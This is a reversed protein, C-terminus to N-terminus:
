HNKKGFLKRLFRGAKTTEKDNDAQQNEQESSIDDNESLKEKDGKVVDIMKQLADRVVSKKRLPKCDFLGITNDPLPPPEFLQMKQLSSYNQAQQLVRGAIPLALKSGSGYNGHQFHIDDDRAGVWVAIVMKKNYCIYRADKYNQSTGTKGAFKNQVGYQNYLSQGTGRSTAELLMANMKLATQESVPTQFTPQLKQYIVEDKSNRIEKIAYQKTMKGKNAFASYAAALELLSVDMTGLAASPGKPLTNSFGMKRCMYDFDDYGVRRYLDVAPLNMSHALAYWLAAEGGSSGDYNRPEWDPYDEFHHPENVLYDCPEFGKELATAYLIPKFASAAQRQAKVLDYPLYRFNNGGVWALINGREPGQIVVGAHLMKKYHWLSDSFSMKRVGSGEWTFIERKKITSNEEVSIYQKKKGNFEGDLRKQMLSLHEKIAQRTIEQLDYNLTTTIRLGDKELDYSKGQSHNIQDVIGEAERRVHQLFYPAPGEVTYNSYKLELASKSLQAAAEPTLYGHKAMLQLVINRRKRANDPHLRPNYYTNAKLLGVLVAAEQINLEATTKNFYRNSAAEIGYTNEGFPVTNLYLLLIERKTYLKELRYAIIGEKVKAVPITLFGHNNRGFLNKALQQTITSGGGASKDGMLITKVLVRLLSRRDIGEHEFYRADETSVLANVLHEPLEEWKINTRNEAFYKGILKNDASYVLTASEQRIAKLDGEDVVPGFANHYVAIVFLGCALGFILLSIIVAKFIRSM